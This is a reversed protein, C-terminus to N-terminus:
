IVTALSWVANVFLIQNFKTSKLNFVSLVNAMLRNLVQFASKMLSAQWLPKSTRIQSVVLENLTVGGVKLELDMKPM